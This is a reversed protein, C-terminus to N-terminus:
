RGCHPSEWVNKGLECGTQVCTVCASDLVSFSRRCSSFRPCAGSPFCVSQGCKMPAVRLQIATSIRRVVRRYGAWRRLVLDEQFTYDAVLKTLATEDRLFTMSAGCTASCVQCAAVAYAYQRLITGDLLGSDGRWNSRSPGLWSWASWDVPVAPYVASAFLFSSIPIEATLHSGKM